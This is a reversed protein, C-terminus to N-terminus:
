TYTEQVSNGQTKALAFNFTCVFANNGRESFGLRTEQRLKNDRVCFYRLGPPLWPLGARCVRLIEIERPRHARFDGVNSLKPMVRKGAIM